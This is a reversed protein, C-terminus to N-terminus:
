LLADAWHRKCTVMTVAHPRVSYVSHHWWRETQTERRDLWCWESQVPTYPLLSSKLHTETHSDTHTQTHTHTHTHSDTHTHTHTRTHTQTRTHSDTHTRTHTDTHSHTHTRTHTQTHAHTLRHTHSHIHTDQNNLPYLTVYCARILDHKTNKIMFTFLYLSSFLFGHTGCLM